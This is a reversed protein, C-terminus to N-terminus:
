GAGTHVGHTAICVPEGQQRLAQAIHLMRSTESLFGCNPFLAIM